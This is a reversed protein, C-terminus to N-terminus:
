RVYGTAAVVNITRGGVAIATDASATGNPYFTVTSAALVVGDPLSTRNFADTDGGPHPVINSTFAAAGGAACADNRLLRFGTVTVELQTACGSGVAVQHGYRATSRLEDYIFRANYTSVDFFRPLAFAALAGAIVMVMILEIMTYGRQKNM